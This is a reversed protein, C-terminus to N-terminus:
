VSIQLGAPVPALPNSINVGAAQLIQANNRYNALKTANNGWKAFQALSLLTSGPPVTYVWFNTDGKGAGASGLTGKAAPTILTPVSKTPKPTVSQTSTSTSTSTTTTPAYYSEEVYTAAPSAPYTQTSGTGAASNTADAAAVASNQQSQYLLYLVTGVGVVVAILLPKDKWLDKFVESM